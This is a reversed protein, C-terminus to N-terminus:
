ADAPHDTVGQGGVSVWLDSDLLVQLSSARMPLDTCLDRNESRWPRSSTADPRKAEHRLSFRSGSPDGAVSM